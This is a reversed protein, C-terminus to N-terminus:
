ALLPFQARSIDVGSISIALDSLERDDPEDEDTLSKLDQLEIDELVVGIVDAASMGTRVSDAPEDDVM